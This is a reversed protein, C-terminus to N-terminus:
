KMLKSFHAKLDNALVEPPVVIVETELLHQFFHEGARYGGSFNQRTVLRATTRAQKNGSTIKGINLSINFSSYGHEGYYSLVRSIGEGLDVLSEDSLDAFDGQPCIGMVENTGRPSFTTLWHISGTKGIYREDRRKEENVLDAWYDSGHKRRYDDLASDIEESYNNPISSVVVQFHPHVASAGAPPMYNTNISAYLQGGEKIGQLFQKAVRFTDALLPASFEDPQLFHKKCPVVIAHYKSLPFLNPFLTAEGISIRGSPVVSDPFRPTASLVKEPCFFCQQRSEEVLKEVLEHDTEGVLTKYKDTLRLGVFSRFGTLPDQRHEIMHSDEEFGKLPSLIVSTEIEKHFALKEKLATV